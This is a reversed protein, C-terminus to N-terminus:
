AGSEAGASVQHRIGDGNRRRCYPHRRPLRAVAYPDKREPAPIEDGDDDKHRYTLYAANTTNANNWAAENGEIAAMAVVWPSKTQLAVVEVEGSTNYNYMRQPDKIARVIGARYLRGEVRRERGPERVVPVYKGKLKRDASWTTSDIIDDGAIKFWELQRNKVPRKKFDGAIKGDEYGKLTKTWIGGSAIRQAPRDM